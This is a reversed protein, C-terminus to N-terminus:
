VKYRTIVCSVIDLTVLGAPPNPRLTRPGQEFVVEGNGVDVRQSKMWGGLRDSGEYITIEAQPLERTLYHAAALGTIGGGLIAIQPVTDHGNADISKEDNATTSTKLRTLQVRRQRSSTTHLTRSSRIIAKLSQRRLAQCRPTVFCQRLLTVLVHEPLHPPM